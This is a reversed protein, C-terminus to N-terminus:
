EKDNDEILETTKVGFVRALAELRAISAMYNPNRYLRLVTTQSINDKEGANYVRVWLEQVDWQRADAQFRVRNKTM